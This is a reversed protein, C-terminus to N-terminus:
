SWRHVQRLITDPDWGLGPRYPAPHTSGGTAGFIVARDTPLNLAAAFATAYPGLGFGDNSACVIWIRDAIPELAVTVAGIDAGAAEIGAVVTGRGADPDGAWCTAIEDAYGDLIPNGDFRDFIDVLDLAPSILTLSAVRGPHHAAWVAAGLGGMSTGVLHVPGDPAVTDVVSVGHGGHGHPDVDSGWCAGTWPHHTTHGTAHLGVLSDRGSRLSEGLSADMTDAAPGGHLCVVTATRHGVVPDVRYGVPTTALIGTM